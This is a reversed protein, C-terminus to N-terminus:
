HIIKFIALAINEKRKFEITFCHAKYFSTLLKLNYMECLDIESILKKFGASRSLEIFEGLAYNVVPNYYNENIEASNTISIWAEKKDFVDSFLTFLVEETERDKLTITLSNQDYESETYVNAIGHNYVQMMRKRYLKRKVILYVILLAIVTVIGFYIIIIENSAFFASDYPRSFRGRSLILMQNFM